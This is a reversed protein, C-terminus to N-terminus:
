CLEDRIGGTARAEVRAREARPWYESNYPHTLCWRWTACAAAVAAQWREHSTAADAKVAREAEEQRYRWYQRLKWATLVHVLSYLVPVLAALWFPPPENIALLVSGAAVLCAGSAEVGFRLRDARTAYPGSFSVGEYPRQSGVVLGLFIVLAGVGILWVAVVTM